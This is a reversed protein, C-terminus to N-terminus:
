GTLAAEAAQGAADPRLQAEGEPEQVGQRHIARDLHDAYAGLTLVLRASQATRKKTDPLAAAYDNALSLGLRRLAPRYAEIKEAVQRQHKRSTLNPGDYIYDSRGVWRLWQEIRYVGLIRAAANKLKQELWELARAPQRQAILAAQEPHPVRTLVPYRDAFWQKFWQRGRLGELPVRAWFAVYDRDYYPLLLDAWPITAVLVNSTYRRVHDEWGWRWFAARPSSDDGLQARVCDALTDHDFPIGLLRDLNPRTPAYHRVIAAAMADLSEDDGPKLRAAFSGAILDGAFGQVLRMPPLNMDGIASAQGLSLDCCGEFWATLRDLEGLILDNRYAVTRQPLNLVRAIEAAARLERTHGAGFTIALPRRGKEVLVAALLRSDYGGSLSLALPTPDAALLGDMLRHTQRDMEQFFIDRRMTEDTPPLRWRRERSVALGTEATWRYVAGTALRKVHRHLTRDEWMGRGIFLCQVAVTDLPRALSPDCALIDTISSAILWGDPTEAWYAPKLGVPDSELMFNRGDWRLLNFIQAQEEAWAADVAGSPRPLHSLRLPFADLVTATPQPDGPLLPEVPLPANESRVALHLPGWDVTTLGARVAAQRRRERAAPDAPVGPRPLWLLFCSTAIM